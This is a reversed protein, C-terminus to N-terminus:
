PERRRPISAGVTLVLIIPVWLWCGYTLLVVDFEVVWGARPSILMAVNPVALVGLVLGPGLRMLWKSEIEVALRSVLGVGAALYAATFLLAYGFLFDDVLPILLVVFGLLTGCGLPWVWEIEVCRGQRRWLMALLALLALAIWYTLSTATLVTAAVEMELNECGPAILLAYGILAFRLAFFKSM